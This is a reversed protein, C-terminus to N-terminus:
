KHNPGVSLPMLLRPDFKWFEVTAAKFYRDELGNKVEPSCVVAIIARDPSVFVRGVNKIQPWRKLPQATLIDWLELGSPTEFFARGSVDPAGTICSLHPFQPLLGTITKRHVDYINGKSVFRGDPLYFLPMDIPAKENGQIHWIVAGTEVNLVDVVGAVKQEDLFVCAVMKGDPSFVARNIAHAPGYDFRRIRRRTRWNWLELHDDLMATSGRYPLETTSWILVQDINNSNITWGNIHHTRGIDVYMTPKMDSSTFIKLDNIYFKPKTEHQQAAVSLQLSLSDIAFIFVGDPSLLSLDINILGSSVPQNLRGNQADIWYFRGLGDSYSGETAMVFQHKDTFGLYNAYNYRSGDKLLASNIDVQCVRDSPSPTSPSYQPAPAAFCCQRCSILLCGFLAALSFLKRCIKSMTVGDNEKYRTM